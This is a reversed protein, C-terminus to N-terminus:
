IDAKEEGFVTSISTRFFSKEENLEGTVTVKCLVFKLAALNLPSSSIEEAEAILVDFSPPEVVTVPM